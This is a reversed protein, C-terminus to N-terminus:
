SYVGHEIRGLAREVLRAGADTELMALPTFGRLSRNASRLWAAAKKSDGIAAAARVIARAIRMVRDSEAVTLSQHDSIRRDFTRRPIVLEYLEDPSLLGNEVLKAAAQPALGRMAAAALDFDSHVDADLVDRGGLAAATAEAIM